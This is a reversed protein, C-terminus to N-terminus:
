YKSGFAQEVKDSFVILKKLWATAREGILGPITMPGELEPHSRLFLTIARKVNHQIIAIAKQIASPDSPMKSLGKEFFNYIRKLLEERNEVIEKVEPLALSALFEPSVKSLSLIGDIAFSTVGLESELIKVVQPLAQDNLAAITGLLIKEDDTTATITKDGLKLSDLPKVDIKDDAKNAFHRYILYGIIVVALTVAAGILIYKLKHSTKVTPTTSQSLLKAFEAKILSKLEEPTAGNDQATQVKALIITIQDKQDQTLNPINQTSDKVTNTAQAQSLKEKLLSAVQQNDDITPAQVQSSINNFLCVSFVFSACLFSLKQKM